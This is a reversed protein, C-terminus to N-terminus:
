KTSYVLLKIERKSKSRVVDPILVSLLYSLSLTLNHSDIKYFLIISLTLNHSGIKYFLIIIKFQFLLLSLSLTNYIYNNM